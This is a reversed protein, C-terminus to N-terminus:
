KCLAQVVDFAADEESQHYKSMRERVKYALSMALQENDVCEFNDMLYEATCAAEYYSHIQTLEQESLTIGRITYEIKM